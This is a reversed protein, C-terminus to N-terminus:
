SQLLAITVSALQELHRFYPLQHAYLSPLIGRLDARRSSLYNLMTTPEENDGFDRAWNWEVLEPRRDKVMRTVCGAIGADLMPLCQGQFEKETTGSPFPIDMFSEFLDDVQQYLAAREGDDPLNNMPHQNTWGRAFGSRCDSRRNSSRDASTNERGTAEGSRGAQYLRPEGKTRVIKRNPPCHKNSFPTTKQPPASFQASLPRTPHQKPTRQPHPPNAARGPPHSTRNGCLKGAPRVINTSFHHQKKRHPPFNHPCRGLPIISPRERRTSPPSPGQRPHSFRKGCLKGAPRVINTSFHHQKKRHPPFNHPCRGPQISSPPEGRASPPRPLGTDPQPKTQSSPFPTSELLTPPPHSAAPM